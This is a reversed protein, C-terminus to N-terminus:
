KVDVIEAIVMPRRKIKSYIHNSVKQELEKKVQQWENAKRDKLIRKAQKAVAAIIEDKDPKYVFGRSIISVNHNLNGGRKKVTIVIMGEEALKRREELVTRGVDGVLRGDVFVDRVEVKEGLRAEGPAFEITQGDRLEFVKEADFGMEAMLEKYGRQHRIEGGIPVFYEPRVIGALMSLDGQSGHGSVHLNDQIGSYVVRAGQEILADIVANVRDFVGPIPDSSFIVVADKKIKIRHHEGRALRDMASGKQGFSGAVIYTLKYSKARRAEDITIVVGEPAHLYGQSEAIHMSQEISRGVPVVRRGHKMSVNIAQQMRSINSSMTTIFVQSTARSIENEFATEIIRESETYGSKTAGLCDSFLALVGQESLQALKSIEFQVNDVPTWDFKFDPTYVINGVPTQIFFGLADPVSHNVRFPIVRFGGLQIGDQSPNILKLSQGKIMENESLTHQIFAHTLKSGYVTPNGLDKLLYPLGGIHDFHAHSIIIGRIKNKKPTLYSIDPIVVDVGLQDSEPFGVGADVIIIDNDTEFLHMNQTVNGAGGLSIYRVKEM